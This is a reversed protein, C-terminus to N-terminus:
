AKIEGLRFRAIQPADTEPLVPARQKQARDDLPILPETVKHTLALPLHRNQESCCRGSHHTNATVKVEGSYHFGVGCVIGGVGYLPPWYHQLLFTLQSDPRFGFVM